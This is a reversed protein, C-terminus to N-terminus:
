SFRPGDEPVPDMDKIFACAFLPYHEVGDEDVRINGPELMIRRAIDFLSGVKQLSPATRDKGSKV